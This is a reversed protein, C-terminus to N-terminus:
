GGSAKGDDCTSGRCASIGTSSDCGDLSSSGVVGPDTLLLITLFPVALIASCPDIPSSLSLGGAEEPPVACAFDGAFALGVGLFRCCHDSNGSSGGSDKLVATGSVTRIVSDAGTTAGSGFGGDAAVTVTWLGLSM